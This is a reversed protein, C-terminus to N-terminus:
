KVELRAVLKDTTKWIFSVLIVLAGAPVLLIGSAAIGVFLTLFKLVHCFFSKMNIERGGGEIIPLM